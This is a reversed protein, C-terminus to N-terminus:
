GRGLARGAPLPLVPNATLWEDAALRAVPVLAARVDGPRAGNEFLAMVEKLFRVQQELHIQEAARVVGGLSEPALGPPFLAGVAGSAGAGALAAELAADVSATYRARRFGVGVLYTESNSPRSTQPKTVYLSRFLGALVAALTPGMPRWYTFTKVVFSGGEDLVRLGVLVQGLHIAELNEEHRSYDTVEIGVDSTYLQAGGGLRARTRKALEAVDAPRSLDGRMGEDMMWRDRYNEYLGYEDKLVTTGHGGEPMLSSAAWELGSDTFTAVYQNIAFVFAGPFEASCALRFPATGQSSLESRGGGDQARKVLDFQWIMEYMKLWANSPSGVGYTDRLDRKLPGYLDVARLIGRLRPDHEYPDMRAKEAEVRRGIDALEDLAPSDTACGRAALLAESGIEPAPVLTAIPRSKFDFSAAVPSLFGAPAERRREYRTGRKQGRWPRGGEAM